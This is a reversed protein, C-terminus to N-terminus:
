ILHFQTLSKGTKDLSFCVNTKRQLKKNNRTRIFM